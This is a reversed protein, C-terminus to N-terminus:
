MHFSNQQNQHQKKYLIRCIFIFQELKSSIHSLIFLLVSKGAANSRCCGVGVGVRNEPWQRKGMVVCKVCRKLIWGPSLTSRIYALTGHISPLMNYYANENAKETKLLFNFVIQKIM